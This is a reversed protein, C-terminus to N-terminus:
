VKETVIGHEQYEPALYFEDRSGSFLFTVPRANFMVVRRVIQFCSARALEGVNKPKLFLMDGDSGM